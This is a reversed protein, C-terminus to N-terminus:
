PRNSWRARTRLCGASELFRSRVTVTIGELAIPDASLQIGVELTQGDVVTISDERAAYGLAEVRLAYRGPSLNMFDFQGRRDTGRLKGLPELYVAASEMWRGSGRESVRGVVNGFESSDLDEAVLGISFSGAVDVTLDGDATEYGFRRVILRHVGRPLPPFRFRGGEDTVVSVQFGPVDLQARPLSSGNSRDVVTGQIEIWATDPNEQASAHPFSITLLFVLTGLQFMVRRM